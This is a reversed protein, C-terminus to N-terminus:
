MVQGSPQECTFPSLDLDPEKRSFFLLCVEWLFLMFGGKRRRM